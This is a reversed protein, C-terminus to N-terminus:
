TAPRNSNNEDLYWKIPNEIIYERIRDLDKDDRIIHDYYNRQWSSDYYKRKRCERSVAAKYTRIISGLSKSIVYQFTKPLPQIYEVGVLNNMENLQVDRGHDNLIIIGYLHNPIIVYEDLQTNPFHKPIEDWCQKAIVGIPSLQVEDEVVEGFIRVKERTCLTVFYGGPESYDYEQLCISKRHHIAPSYKM